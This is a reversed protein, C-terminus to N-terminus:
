ERFIRVELTPIRVNPNENQYKMGAAFHVEIERQLPPLEHFNMETLKTGEGCVRLIDYDHAVVVINDKTLHVDM